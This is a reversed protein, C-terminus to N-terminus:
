QAPAINQNVRFFNTPDYKTKVAVLREHNAGYSTQIRKEGEDNVDELYNVYAAEQEFPRMAEWSDRVWGVNRDSEAPDAWQGTVILSLPSSREGFATEDAGVRAMAGGLQEVAIVSFPSPVAAAQQIMTEIADDSLEALFSSKWYHLRGPPYLPEGLAQVATYPMPGVMDVLPQGFERLPRLAAEGDELPGSYCVIFGAVPHGDPSTALAVHVTVEDPATSTFERYFRLAERAASFPHFILGGLVMPGVPHLRFEFSTVVGFNGG